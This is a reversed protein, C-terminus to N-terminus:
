IGLHSVSCRCSQKRTNRAWGAFKM